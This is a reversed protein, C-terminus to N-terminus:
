NVNDMSLEIHLSVLLVYQQILKLVHSVTLSQAHLAYVMQDQHQLSLRSVLKVRLHALYVVKVLISVFQVLILLLMLLIDLQVLLVFIILRVVLVDLFLRVILVIVM